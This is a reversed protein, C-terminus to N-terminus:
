KILETYIDLSNSIQRNYVVTILVRTSVNKDLYAIIEKPYNKKKKKKKLIIRLFQIPLDPPRSM